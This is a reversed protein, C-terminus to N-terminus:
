WPVGAFFRSQSTFPEPDHADDDRHLLRLCVADRIQLSLNRAASHALLQHAIAADGPAVTLQEPKGLKTKTAAALWAAAGKQRRYRPAGIDPMFEAIRRHSGPWVTLNGINARAESLDVGILATPRSV